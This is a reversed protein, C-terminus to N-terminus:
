EFGYRFRNKGWHSRHDTQLNLETVSRYSIRSDVGLETSPLAVARVRAAAGGWSRPVQISISILIRTQLCLQLPIQIGDRKSM